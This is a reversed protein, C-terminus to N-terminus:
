PYGINNTYTVNNCYTLSVKKGALASFDNFAFYVNNSQQGYDLIGNSGLFTVGIINVDNASRLSICGDANTSYMTGGSITTRTGSIWSRGGDTTLSGVGCTNNIFRTDFTYANGYTALPYNVNKITNDSVINRHAGQIQIGYNYGSNGAGDIQNQFILIDDSVTSVINFDCGSVRNRVISINASNEAAIGWHSAGSYQVVDEVTNGVITVNSAHFTNIGVDQGGYVSNNEVITNSNFSTGTAEVTIPNDGANVVTNNYIYGNIVQFFDIGQGIVNELYINKVTIDRSVEGYFAVGFYKFFNYPWTGYNTRHDSLSGKNANWTGGDLTFNQVSKTTLMLSFSAGLNAPTPEYITANPSVKLYVNSQPVLSGTLRYSGPGIYIYGGYVM